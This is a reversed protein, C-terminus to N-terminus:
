RPRPDGHAQVLEEIRRWMARLAARDVDGLASRLVRLRLSLPPAAGVGIPEIILSALMRAMLGDRGEWPRARRVGVPDIVVPALTRGPAPVVIINSPKHDRNFLGADLMRRVLEGIRGALEHEQRSSLNRRALHTILSQGSLRLTVITEVTRRGARGRFLVLPRESAIGRAVLATAARWQRLGRTVGAVRSLADKPRDLALAKVVVGARAGDVSAEGALVISRPTRKLAAAGGLWGPDCVARAVGPADAVSSRLVRLGATVPLVEAM